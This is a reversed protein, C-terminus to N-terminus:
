AHQGGVRSVCWEVRAENAKVVCRLCDTTPLYTAQLQTGRWVNISIHDIDIGTVGSDRIEIQTHCSPGANVISAFM